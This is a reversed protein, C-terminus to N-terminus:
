ADLQCDILPVEGQLEFAAWLTISQPLLSISTATSSKRLSSKSLLHARSFRQRMWALLDM